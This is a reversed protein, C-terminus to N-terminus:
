PNKGKRDKAEGANTKGRPRARCGYIWDFALCSWSDLGCRKCVRQSCGNCTSVARAAACVQCTAAPDSTTEAVIAADKCDRSKCKGKKAKKSTTDDGELWKWMADLETPSSVEIVNEGGERPEDTETPREVERAASTPVARSETVPDELATYERTEGKVCAQDEPDLVLKERNTKKSERQAKARAIEFAVIQNLMEMASRMPMM